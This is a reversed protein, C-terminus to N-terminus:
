PEMILTGTYTLPYSGCQMSLTLTGDVVVGQLGTIIYDPFPGGLALPVISDGSLAYGDESSLYSVGSITMDLRLPMRPSFSVQNMLINVYRVEGSGISDTQPEIDVVIDETVHFSGNLQDVSLTGKFSAAVEAPPTEEPVETEECATFALGTMLLAALLFTKKIM